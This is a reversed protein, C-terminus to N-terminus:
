DYKRNLLFNLGTALTSNTRTYPKTIENAM